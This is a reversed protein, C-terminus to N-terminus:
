QQHHAVREILWEDGNRRLTMTTRTLSFLQQGDQTLLHYTRFSTVTTIDGNVSIQPDTLFVRVSRANDFESQIAREQNGGLSPWVRKLAAVDRTQLGNVYQALVNKVAGEVEAASLTPAPAAERPPEVAAPEAAVPPPVPTEVAATRVPAPAEAPRARERSAAKLRAEIEAARFRGNAEVARATADALRGESSLQRAEVELAMAARYSWTALNQADVADALARTQTLKALADDFDGQTAAPAGSRPADEVASSAVSTVSPPAVPERAAQPAVTARQTPQPATIARAPTSPAPARRAVPPAEVIPDGAVPDPSRPPEVRPPVTAPPQAGTTGLAEAAPHALGAQQAALRGTLVELQRTLAEVTGRYKATETELARHSAYLGQVDSKAKWAAGFVIMVPLMVVAFIAILVTALSVTHRREIGSKQDAIAIMYRQSLM